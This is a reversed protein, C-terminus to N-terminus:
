KCHNLLWRKGFRVEIEVEIEVAARVRRVAPSVTWVKPLHLNRTCPSPPLRYMIDSLRPPQSYPQFHHLDSDTWTNGGKFGEDTLLDGDVVPLSNADPSTRAEPHKSYTHTHTHKHTHTNQGECSSVCRQPLPPTWLSLTWPTEYDSRNLFYNGEQINDYNRM